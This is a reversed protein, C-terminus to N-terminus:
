LFLGRVFESLVEQIQERTFEHGIGIRSAAQLPEKPTYGDQLFFYQLEPRMMPEVVFAQFVIGFKAGKRSPQTELSLHPGYKGTGSGLRSQVGKTKLADAASELEERVFGEFQELLTATDRQKKELQEIREREAADTKQNAETQAKGIIDEYNM